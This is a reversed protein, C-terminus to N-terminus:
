SPVEGLLPGLLSNIDAVLKDVTTIGTSRYVPQAPAGPDKPDKALWVLSPVGYVYHTSAIDAALESEHPDLQVSPIISDLRNNVLETYRPIMIPSHPDTRTTFVLLIGLKANELVDDLVGALHSDTM